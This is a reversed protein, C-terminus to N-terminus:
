RRTVVLDTVNAMRLAVAKSEEGQGLAETGSEPFPEGAEDGECGGDVGSGEGSAEREGRQVLHIPVM